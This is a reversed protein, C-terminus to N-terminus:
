KYVVITFHIENLFESNLLEKTIRRKVVKLFCSKKLHELFHHEKRSPVEITYRGKNPENLIMFNKKRCLLWFIYFPQNGNWQTMNINKDAINNIINSAMKLKFEKLQFSLISLKSTINNSSPPNVSWHILATRKLIDFYRGKKSQQSM